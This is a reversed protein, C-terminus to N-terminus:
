KKIKYKQKPHNPMDYKREIKESKLLPNLYNNMFTERHKIQVLEMLDKLSYEKDEMKQLLM